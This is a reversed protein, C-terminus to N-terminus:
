YPGYIKEISVVFMWRNRAFVLYCLVNIYTFYIFLIYFLCGIDDALCVSILFKHLAMGYGLQRM